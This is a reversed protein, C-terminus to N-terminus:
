PKGGINSFEPKTAIQFTISNEELPATEAGSSYATSLKTKSQGPFLYILTSSDALNNYHLGNTFM